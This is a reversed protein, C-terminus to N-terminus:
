MPRGSSTLKRGAQISINSDYYGVYFSMKILIVCSLWSDSVSRVDAPASPARSRSRGQLIDFATFCHVSPCSLCLKQYNKCNNLICFM